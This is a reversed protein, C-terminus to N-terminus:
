TEVKIKAIKLGTTGYTDLARHCPWCVTQGNKVDWLEKCQRADETTRLKNELAIHHYRKIHDVTLDGGRKGCKKCRYGDRKLVKRHWEKYETLEM